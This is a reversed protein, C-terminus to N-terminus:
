ISCDPFGYKDIMKRIALDNGGVAQNISWLSQKRSGRSYLLDRNSGVAKYCAGNRKGMWFLWVDDNLPCLTFAAELDQTSHNLIGPPYLVGGGSTPLLRKPSGRQGVDFLWESYPRVNGAPDFTIEHARHCPVVRSSEDTERVLEELWTAWYYIDDDATCIFASPFANLTPLIKKYSNTDETYRIELGCSQLNLVNSPLLHSDSHAIWLITRDAKVTQRLLSRLTLALTPFRPPYSTLSVILPGSLSHPRGRSVHPLTLRVQALCLRMFYKSERLRWFLEQKLCGYLVGIMGPKLKQQNNAM